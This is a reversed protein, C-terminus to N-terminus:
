TVTNNTHNGPLTTVSLRKRKLTQRLKWENFIRHANAV